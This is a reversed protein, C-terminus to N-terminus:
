EHFAIGTDKSLQSRALQHLFGPLPGLKSFNDTHYNTVQKMIAELGTFRYLVSSHDNIHGGIIVSDEDEKILGVPFFFSDEIYRYRVIPVRWSREPYPLNRSIYLVRFDPEITM